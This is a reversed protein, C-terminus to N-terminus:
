FDGCFIASKGELQTEIQKVLRDGAPVLDELAYAFRRMAKPPALPIGLRHELPLASQSASIEAVPWPVSAYDRAETVLMRADAEVVAAPWPYPAGYKTAITYSISAELDDYIALRVRISPPLDGLYAEAADHLLAALQLESDDPMLAAVNLSHEAISYFRQTHGLFRCQNALSRVIDVLEIDDAQLSRVDIHRGSFTCFKM